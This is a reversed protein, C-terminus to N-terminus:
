IHKQSLTDSTGVFINFSLATKSHSFAFIKQAQQSRESAYVGLM